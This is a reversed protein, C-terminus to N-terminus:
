IDKALRLVAPSSGASTPISFLQRYSAQVRRQPTACSGGRLVFQSSMFKGNYQALQGRARRSIGPLPSVRIGDMGVCRPVASSSRGRFGLAAPAAGAEDSSRATKPASAKRPAKGSRRPRCGPAAAWPRFLDAEFIRGVHRVPSAPDIPWAGMWGSNAQGNATESRQLWYLASSGMRACGPGAMRCGFARRATAATGSLIAGNAM